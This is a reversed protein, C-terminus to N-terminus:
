LSCTINELIAGNNFVEIGSENTTAMYSSREIAVAIGAEQAKVFTIDIETTNTSPTLIKTECKYLRFSTDNLSATDAFSSISGLVLLGVLLKKM